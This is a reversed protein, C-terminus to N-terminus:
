QANSESMSGASGPVPLNRTSRPCPPWRKIHCNPLAEQLKKVGEDTVRTQAIYVVQLTTLGKLHELGADSIQTGGLWLTQLQTLEKLYEL